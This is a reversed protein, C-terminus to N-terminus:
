ESRISKVPNALAATVTQSSVTFIIILLLILIGPLFLGLSLAIRNAFIQLLQSGILYSIPIAILISIGFMTLYSKSLLFILDKAGAGMVKRIGIEKAKSKVLYITIGLLGLCSIIMSIIGFFSVIWIIDTANAYNNKIRENYFEAQFPTDTIEQWSEELTLRTALIDSGSLDINLTGFQDPRYRLLLPEIAYNTPKFLFDAVVGGISLQTSDDLFITRGISTGADGLEFKEIFAENVIAFLERQQSFNQSFNEGALLQIDFHPIYNEDIFYDRVSIEENEKKTRIDTSADEWTGMPFSIASVKEVGPIHSFTSLLKSYSQGQMDVLLTNAQDFGFNNKVAYNIQQWAITVTIFFILTFVFQTVLLIKRLGLWQILKINQLNQLVAKPTTRSLSSAPLLGAMFGVVITFLLFFGFLGWDEKLTLDTFEAFQLRLFLPKLGNLLVYAFVFALLSTVVAEVIFQWFVQARSAGIVKRVGIEKTRIFSRAITLNTYNFCASLMIILALIVLFWILFNPMGRGMSNSMIPGPTIDSIAQLSFQYGTDRIELDLKSYKTKALNALAREASEKDVKENLRIFNYNSYYNQWEKTINNTGSIKEEALQTAVSGLAEFELHTKGPFAELVGTVKFHSAYGPIKVEKGIARENKFLKAALEETLVLSYPEEFVRSVKGEKLKFGFMDFFSRDTLLGNFEIKKNQVEITGSLSNILPTWLEVQPVEESISQGLRYPSSAYRETAGDKRIPITSIRYVQDTNTHFRDYSHADKILMIILLCVSMSLALGFINIFSFMKQKRLLRFAIKFYNKVM